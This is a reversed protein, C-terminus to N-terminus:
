LKKLLFLFFRFLLIDGTEASKCLEEESIVDDRWYTDIFEKAVEIKPFKQATKLANGILIIWEKSKEKTSAKLHMKKQSNAYRITM